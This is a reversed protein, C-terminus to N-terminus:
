WGFAKPFSPFFLKYYIILFIIIDRIIQLCFREFCYLCFKATLEVEVDMGQFALNILPCMYKSSCLILSCAWCSALVGLDPLFSLVLVRTLRFASPRESWTSWELYDECPDEHTGMFSESLTFVWVLQCPLIHQSTGTIWFCSRLPVQIIQAYQVIHTNYNNTLTIVDYIKFNDKDKLGNERCSWLILVFILYRSLM